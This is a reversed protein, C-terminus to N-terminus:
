INKQGNDKVKARRDNKKTERSSTERTLESRLLKEFTDKSLHRKLMGDVAVSIAGTEESVIIAVADSRESIGIGARHRMGLDRSLNTSSSMPLMCGAALIRGNRIIMAGDHLPTNPFFVNKILEASIASDIKTGTIAYENLGIGREFVILAGTKSKSMSECASVADFIISDANELKVRRGFIFSFNRSGMQEFFKRLEPQFLVVLVIIGMQMTLDLLHSIVNLRAVSSLGMLALLLVIGKIVNGASTRRVVSLIRYILFAIIAIDLIDWVTITQVMTSLGFIINKIAEM